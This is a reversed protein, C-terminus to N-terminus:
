GPHYHQTINRQITYTDYSIATYVQTPSVLRGIVHAPLQLPDYQLADQSLQLAEAVMKVDEDEPFTKRAQSFDDLVARFAM